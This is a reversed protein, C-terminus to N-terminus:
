PNQALFMAFEGGGPSLTGVISGSPGIAFPTLIGQLSWLPRGTACDIGSTEGDSVVLLGESDVVADYSYMPDEFAKWALKGTSGVAVIGANTRVVTTGDKAIVVPSGWVNIADAELDTDWLTTGSADIAALRVNSTTDTSALHTILITGDPAVAPDHVLSGVLDRKWATAGSADITVVRTVMSSADTCDGNSSASVAIVARDGPALAVPSSGISCRAFSESTWLVAGQLSLKVVSTTDDDGWLATYLSGDRGVAFGQAQGQPLDTSHTVNGLPDMVALVPPDGSLRMRLAGDAALFLQSVAQSGFPHVWLLEGAPSIAAVTDGVVWPDSANTDFTAYARGAADVVIEIAQYVPNFPLKLKWAVEPATPAPAPAAYARTSCYGPMPTPAGALLAAECGTPVVSSGDRDSGTDTTASVEPGTMAWCSALVAALALCAASM